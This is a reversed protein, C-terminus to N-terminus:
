RADELDKRYGLLMGNVCAKCAIVALTAKPKSFYSEQIDFKVKVFDGVIDNGCLECLADM